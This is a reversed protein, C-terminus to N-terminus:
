TFLSAKMSFQVCPSPFITLGPSTNTTGTGPFTVGCGVGVGKGGSSFGEGVGSAWVHINHHRNNKSEGGGLQHFISRGASNLHTIVPIPILNLESVKPSQWCGPSLARCAISTAMAMPAPKC